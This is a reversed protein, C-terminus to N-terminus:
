RSPAQLSKSFRVGLGDFRVDPSHRNRSSSRARAAAFYFSGGRYTRLSPDQPDRLGDGDRPPSDYDAYADRCWEWVNGHMDHLGFRNPLFRGVPAHVDFGDEFDPEHSWDASFARVSGSDAINAHGLLTSVANGSHWLERTGARCAYEWQAETPVELGFMWASREAEYWTIQEVPHAATIPTQSRSGGPAYYSPNDGHLHQWQGQTLEYKSLFFPALQVLHAPHESPSALSDQADAGMRFRGGPILALVVGTEETIIWPGTGEEPWDLNPAPRTGSQLVWFEWLGTKANPGLPLLGLQAEIVLGAYRPHAQPDAIAAIAEAWDRQADQGTVSDAEITRAAILRQQVLDITGSGSAGLDNLHEVLESLLQLQWQGETSQTEALRLRMLLEQHEPLRAYLAKARSLWNEIGEIQEPHAPWLRTAEDTYERVLKEDSLRLIQQLGANARSKEILAWGLGLALSLIVLGIAVFFGRHKRALRGLRYVYSPPRAHVPEFNLFRRLDSGLAAASSYRGAAERRMAQGIVWEIDKDLGPNVSGLSRADANKLVALATPLGLGELEFPLQGSVLEYAVVGLSYVDSRHSIDQDQGGLQEPAMYALTGIISGEHTMRTAFTDTGMSRAIGFDLVKPQGYPDVLINEPKLDRHIIGRDHAHDVADCVRGLLSLRARLDLEQNACYSRIDTGKVLEMAFYPQPGQGADYNGAEFVQAIGPHHLRGLLDSERQLRRLQAPSSRLPHLLKLAVTRRPSEQVAEFVVGMGGEGLRKQIRYSGIQSPVWSSDFALPDLWQPSALNSPGDMELLKRVEGALEPDKGELSALQNARQSEPMSRLNEFAQFLKEYRQIESETGM